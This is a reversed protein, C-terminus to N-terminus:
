YYKCGISLKASEKAALNYLSDVQSPTIYFGKNDETKIKELIKEAKLYYHNLSEGPTKSVFVLGVNSFFM